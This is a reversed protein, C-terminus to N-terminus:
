SATCANWLTKFRCVEKKGKKDEEKQGDVLQNVQNSELHHHHHNEVSEAATLDLQNSDM